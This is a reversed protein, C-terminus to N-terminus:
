YINEDVVICTLRGFFPYCAMCIADTDDPSMGISRKIKEKPILIFKGNRSYTYQQGMLQQSILHGYEEAIEPALRIDHSKSKEALNAYLETRANAYKERDIPRNSFNLDLVNYGKSVLLDYLGAGLGTIDVVIPIDYEYLEYMTSVGQIIDIAFNLLAITDLGNVRYHKVIINQHRVSLCSFDSGSRAIDIGIQTESEWATPDYEKYRGNHLKARGLLRNVQTEGFFSDGSEIPWRGLLRSQANAGPRYFTGSGPPFEIDTDRKQSEEITDSWKKLLTSWHLGQIAGPYPAPEDNIFAQVNPHELGSIHIIDYYGSLYEQYAHSTTDTPNMIALIRTRDNDMGHISEWISPDRVGVAEDIVILQDPAHYGQFADGSSPTRGLGYWDKAIEYEPSMKGKMISPDITNLTRITKWLIDVVQQQTPATSIVISRPFCFAMWIVAIAALYTKGVGHSACVFVRYPPVTLAILMEKQKEWLTVGLVEEAFAVPDNQYKFYKRYKKEPGESERKQKLIEKQRSIIKNRSAYKRQARKKALKAFSKSEPRYKM